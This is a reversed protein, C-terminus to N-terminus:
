LDYSGLMLIRPNQLQFYFNYKSTETRARKLFPNISFKRLIICFSASFFFLYVVVPLNNRLCMFFLFFFHPELNHRTSIWM